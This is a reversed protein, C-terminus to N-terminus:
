VKVDKPNINESIRLKQHEEMAFVTSLRELIALFNQVNTLAFYTLVNVSFFVFYIMSLMSVSTELKLLRGQYWEPVFIAMVAVLGFNQFFSTGFSNVINFKMVKNMQQKRIENIRNIYHNEWGYCKITRCGVVLDNVIKLRDDNLGSEAAKLNKGWKSSWYQLIMLIVWVGFTTFTYVIGVTQALLCYALINLFPAALLIPFFSLGREVGFLDASILSVLKGSNTETMSKMSLKVVKDYLAAM